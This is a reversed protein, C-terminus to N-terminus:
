VDDEDPEIIVRQQIGTPFTEKTSDAYTVEWEEAYVGPTDVDAAVLAYFVEGRNTTQDDLTATARDVKLEGTRLNRLTYVVDLDTLDLAAGLEDLLRVRPTVHTDHRKLKRDPM